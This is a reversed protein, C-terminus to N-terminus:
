RGYRKHERLSFNLLSEPDRKSMWGLFQVTLGLIVLWALVRLQPAMRWTTDSLGSHQLPLQPEGSPTWSALPPPEARRDSPRFSVYRQPEKNDIM